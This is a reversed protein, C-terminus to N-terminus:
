LIEGLKSVIAAIDDESAILAPALVITDGVVRVVIDKEFFAADLVRLGRLLPALSPSRRAKLENDSSVKRLERWSGAVMDDNPADVTM